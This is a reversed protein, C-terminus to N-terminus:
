TPVLDPVAPIIVQLADLPSATACVTSTAIRLYRATTSLNRHGLLLQITRLDTGAELLHVAFAHRLSHPTVPRTIGSRARAERCAHEVAFRTIPEGPRDGPFLWEGPHTRRWYERLLQLLRSSLMVYRDKRGKGAEVRIVMRQSDIAAPRLRVAESVRLGAAYCVTLIVRHKLTKMGDLFAAVEAPSLVEPLQRPQRCTPIDDKVTWTRRLTVTYLFRLAAVAVSISSAALRKDAALYIQWARIETPGLLEPSKRFHRAFRGVQEIYCAQTRPALNRIQMDEIMRRRLPTM